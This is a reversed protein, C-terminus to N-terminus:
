SAFIILYIHKSNFYAYKGNLQSYIIEAELEINLDQFIFARDTNTLDPPIDIQISMSLDTHLYFM